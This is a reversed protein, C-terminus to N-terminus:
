KYTHCKLPMNTTSVYMVIVHSVSIATQQTKAYKHLAATDTHGNLMITTDSM